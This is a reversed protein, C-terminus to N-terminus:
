NQRGWYDKDTMRKMKNLIGKRDVRRHQIHKEKLKRLQNKLKAEVIDVAAYMNLTSESATLQGKPLHLVVEATYKDNKNGQNAMLKVEARTSRRGKRPMYRDLRSIKGVVYKNLKESVDYHIGSIDVNKIM